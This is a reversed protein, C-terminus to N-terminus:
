ADLKLLIRSCTDELSLVNICSAEIIQKLLYGSLEIFKPVRGSADLLMGYTM